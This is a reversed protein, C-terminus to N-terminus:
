STLPAPRTRTWAPSRTCSKRVSRPVAPTTAMAGSGHSGPSTYSTLTEPAPAGSSAASSGATARTWNQTTLIAPAAQGSLTSSRASCNRSTARSSCSTASDRGGDEEKGAIYEATDRQANVADATVVAGDLDVNELLKRVQTTETTENPIRHQATIVKEEPLMAAFLKVQGDLV